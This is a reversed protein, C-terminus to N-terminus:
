GMEFSNTDEPVLHILWYEFSFSYHKEFFGLYCYEVIQKGSLGIKGM